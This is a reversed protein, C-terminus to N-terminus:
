QNGSSGDQLTQEQQGIYIEIAYKVAFDVLQTQFSNDLIPITPTNVERISTDLSDLIVPTPYAVYRTTFSEANFNLPLFVEDTNEGVVVYVLDKPPYKYPAFLMNDIVIQPVVKAPIDIGQRTAYYGLIYLAEYTTNLYRRATSYSTVGQVATEKNYKVLSSIPYLNGSQALQKVILEQAATFCVSKEYEDLGKSGNTALNEFLVDFESSLETLLM